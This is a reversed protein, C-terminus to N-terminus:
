PVFSGPRTRVNVYVGYTSTQIKRIATDFNTSDAQLVVRPGNVTAPMNGQLAAAYSGSNAKGAESWIRNLEAQQAPTASKYGAMFTSASDVGQSEIFEKAEPSLASTALTEQYDRLAQERAKMADIYKGTDFLGTEKNIFDDASGAADDYSSNINDILQAKAQMEPGGAALWDAEEQRADATATQVRELSEKQAQLDNMKSTTAASFAGSNEMEKAGARATAAILEDVKDIQESLNDTGGAYTQALDKFPVKLDDSQKRIGALSLETDDTQTAMEKLKDAIYGLSARGEGGADIFEAALDAVHEKLKQNAEDTKQFGAVALGIGAAAALGAAAGAPGFGGLANAAVEQFAGVISEASGDFSAATEKATQSAEGKFDDLGEKAGDTGEKVHTTLDQGMTKSTRSIDRQADSFSRELKEASKDGDRSADDLSDAVQDLAGEVDKIGRQFDRTNAAIDLSLGKPM